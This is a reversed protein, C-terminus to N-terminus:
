LPLQVGLLRYLEQQEETARTVIDFSRGAAEASNRQIAGLKELLLKLSVKPNQLVPEWSRQM